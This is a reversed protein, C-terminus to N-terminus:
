WPSRLIAQVVVGTLAGLALLAWPVPASAAEGPVAPRRDPAVAPVLLWPFFPLFAREAEGRSLGSALAFVVAIGAGVLFPWGPTRRIKRAATILAPGCAVALITLDFCVWLPWSRHPGIRASFDAQALSLGQPWNFGALSALWLPVLVGVGTVVNLLARRRIFYVVVVTLALWPASYSFLAGVGLLVGAALAWWPRRRPESGVVGCAVGAATIALTLADPTVALWVAYPVLVLLPVLRRAAPEHCLSRVSVALLPVSLCGLLTVVLALGAPHTLGIRGLAWLALVPGPPHQRAYPTHRAGLEVYHSLYALPDAGVLPVDRLFGGPSDIPRALGAWGDVLALALAWASATAWALVLLLRWSLREHLRARVGLLVAVAVAPALLSRPNVRVDYRGTFPPAPSGVRAHAHVAVAALVAGAAVAAAWWGADVAARKRVGTM